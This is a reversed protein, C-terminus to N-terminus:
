ANPASSLIWLALGNHLAHIAWPAVFRQTRLMVMGLVLGLAFIPAFAALNFHALAFLLATVVVGWRDGFNQVLLPQLFARFVLEELFPAVLTGLAAFLWLQPGDLARAKTVLLQEAYSADFSELLWRWCTELGLLAPAAVAYALLGVALARGWQGGRFGLSRWGDPDVAQSVGLILAVIPLSLISQVALAQVVTPESWDLAQTLLPAALMTVASFLFVLAVHSFGWRAFFVNRGPFLRRALMIVLPALVLGFAILAMGGAAAGGSVPAPVTAASTEVGEFSQM